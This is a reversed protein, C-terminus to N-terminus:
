RAATDVHELGPDGYIYENLLYNIEQISLAETYAVNRSFRSFDVSELAELADPHKLQLYMQTTVKRRPFDRSVAGCGFGFITLAVDAEHVQCKRIVGRDIVRVRSRSTAGRTWVQACTRLSNRSSIEHGAGDVYNISLDRDVLLHFRADLRNVVSWKRWSRPVIFAIVDSFSAAHNFFPVSLANNRGFPPNSVTVAGGVTPRWTLFDACSVEPHRPEIDVSMLDSVGSSRAAEIFSGTGGAPEIWSRQLADPVHEVVLDVVQRAILPPTFFQEKGTVRTNGLPTPKRSAM